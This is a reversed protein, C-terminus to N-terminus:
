DAAVAKRPARKPSRKERKPMADPSIPNPIAALDAKGEALQM